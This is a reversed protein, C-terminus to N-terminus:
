APDQEVKLEGLAALMQARVQDALSDVSDRSLGATPIPPLVRVEVTVNEFRGERQAKRYDAIVIPVVPVQAAIALHFAGKKFPLMPQETRNRTGEPFMLVSTRKERIVQAAHQLSKMARIRNSRDISINGSAWWALNFIPVFNLERKGVAVTRRMGFDGYMPVDFTGQHNGVYVCPQLSESLHEKGFVRVRVRALPLVGWAMIRGMDVVVNNDGWRFLSMFFGIGCSAFFWSAALWSRPNM